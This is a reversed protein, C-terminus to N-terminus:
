FYFGVGLNPYVYKFSMISAGFSGYFNGSFIYTGDLDVTVGSISSKTDKAWGSTGQIDNGRDNVTIYERNYKRDWYGVGASLSIHDTTKFMIGVSGALVTEKTNGTARYMAGMDDLKLIEIHNGGEKNVVCDYKADQFVLNSRFRIYWGVTKGMGGFQIGFPAIVSAHYGMFFKMKANERAATSGNQKTITILPNQIEDLRQIWYEAMNNNRSTGIGETYYTVLLRISTTDQLKKAEDDLYSFCRRMSNNMDTRMSENEQWIKTLQKISHLDSIAIVVADYYMYAMSYNREKMAEDGRRIYDSRDQAESAFVILLLLLIIGYRKMSIM